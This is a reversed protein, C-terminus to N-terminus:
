KWDCNEFASIINLGKMQNPILRSRNIASLYGTLAKGPREGPIGTFEGFLVGSM